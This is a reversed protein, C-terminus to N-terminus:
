SFLLSAAATTINVLGLGAFYKNRIQLVLSKWEGQHHDGWSSKRTKKHVGAQLVVKPLEGCAM